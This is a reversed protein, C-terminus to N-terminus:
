TRLPHAVFFRWMVANASITTTTKGVTGEILQSFTSGPWSHGGGTVRYLETEAGAPCSWALETVDSTVRKAAPAGPACGNRKAWDATIEPISPGPAQTVGSQGLTKGSGDPAPLDLAKPGLGGNYAVFPDATGHFTVVPVPRSFRCGDIDRIGAVPAVAAIRDSYACAVASTMFAGNSLGTAYVRAEDICLTREAEDLLDGVFTVDASHLDTNWMAVAAGSGQPTLTIFGHTEGFPGLASMKTHITAGESYGHLDIVLPMPTPTAYSKPVYRVYWRATTGSTTNVKTEGPAVAPVAGCGPSPRAAVQAAPM